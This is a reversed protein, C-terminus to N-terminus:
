KLAATIRSRLNSGGGFSKGAGTILLAGGRVFGASRAARGQFRQLVAQQEARTARLEGGSRIRLAQFEVEAAFDESVLLPSGEAQVVGSAGLAARRQALIFSQRRRFDEENAEAVQREREAQQQLIQAQFNAQSQAAQGKQIAGLAQVAAGAASLVAFTSVTKGAGGIGIAGVIPLPM